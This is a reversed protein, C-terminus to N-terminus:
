NYFNLSSVLEKDSIPNVFIGFANIHVARLLLCLYLIVPFSKQNVTLHHQYHCLCYTYFFPNFFFIGILPNKMEKLKGM